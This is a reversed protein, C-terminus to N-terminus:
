LFIFSSIVICNIVSKWLTRLFCLIRCTNRIFFNGPGRLAFETTFGVNIRFEMRSGIGWVGSGGCWGKQRAGARFILRSHTFPQNNSDCTQDKFTFILDVRSNGAWLCGLHTGPPSLLLASCGEKAEWCNLEIQASPLYLERFCCAIHSKHLNEQESKVVDIIAHLETNLIWPNM